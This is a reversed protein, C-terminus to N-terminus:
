QNGTPTSKLRSHVHVRELLFPDVVVEKEDYYGEDYRVLLISRPPAMTELVVAGDIRWREAFKQAADISLTWSFGYLRRRRETAIAGRYLRLPPGHYDGPLLLHLANALVGRNGVNLPLMKMEVWVRLFATRIEDSVAPVNAVRKLALRWGDTTENLLDVAEYLKCTDSSRCADVFARAARRARRQEDTLMKRIDEPYHRISTM